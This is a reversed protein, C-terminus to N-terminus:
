LGGHRAARLVENMDDHPSAAPARAGGDFDIAWPEAPAIVTLLADADAEIEERTSGRLRDAAAYPVGREAAVLRRLEGPDSHPAPADPKGPNVIGLEELTRADEADRAALADRLFDPGSM